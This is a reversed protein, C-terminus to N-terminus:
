KGALSQAMADAAALAAARRDAGDLWDAMATRGAEPLAGIETLAAPLDARRLAAEARSLVADPDSGERPTLSRLGTQTRLFAGVRAWLGTGMTAKVSAALGARAASPFTAQLEALTPVGKAAAAALAAPPTVGQATLDALAPAFSGGVDLATQVRTLAARELAARAIAEADAKFATAQQAAADIRANAKAAVDAIQQALQANQQKQAELASQLAALVDPAVARGDAAPAGAPAGAAIRATLDDVAKQLADTRATLDDRLSALAATQDRAAADLRAPLADAAAVRASLASLAQQVQAVAAAQAKAAAADADLRQALAAPDAATPTLPWGPTQLNKAAVFGIAAALAGGLLLPAVGAGGRRRAPAPASRPPPAPEPEPEPRPDPDVPAPIPDAERIPADPAAATDPDLPKDNEAM